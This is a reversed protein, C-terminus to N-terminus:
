FQIIKFYLFIIFSKKLYREVAGTKNVKHNDSVDPNIINILKM